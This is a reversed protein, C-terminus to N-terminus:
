RRRGWRWALFQEGMLVGLAVVLFVRWLETRADGSGAALKDIGEVYEFPVDGMARRLEREEAMSLDSERPDVSVDLRWMGATPRPIAFSTLTEDVLHPIFIRGVPDTLTFDTKTDRNEWLVSFRIEDFSRDM